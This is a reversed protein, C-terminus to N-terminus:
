MEMIIVIHEARVVCLSFVIKVCVCVSMCVCVCDKRYDLFTKQLQPGIYYTAFSYPVALQLVFLLEIECYDLLNVHSRKM